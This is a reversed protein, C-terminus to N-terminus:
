PAAFAIRQSGPGLARALAANDEIRGIRTYSYGSRFTEYFVVLTDDGYLLLDGARITGPREADTPLGRPLKAHKENGNLEAMDLTIPLLQVFARATRNDALTVTFRQAGVTMWMRGQEQSAAAIAGGRSASGARNDAAVAGLTLAVSVAAVGARVCRMARPVPTPRMFGM